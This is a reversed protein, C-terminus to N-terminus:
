ILIREDYKPPQGINGAVMTDETISKILIDIRRYLADKKENAYWHEIKKNSTIYIKKPNFNTMGGKTNVVMPYRDTMQLMLRYKISEGDFDDILVADQGVFGDFFQTSTADPLIFLDLENNHVYRTKGTGPPGIIIILKTKWNRKVNNMIEQYKKLHNINRSLQPYENIIDKLPIRENLKEIATVLDNRKGQKREGRNDIVFPCSLPNRTEDKTCYAEAQAPSGNRREAYLGNSQMIKKLGTIRISEKLEVYAQIHMRGTTPCIEEQGVFYYIHDLINLNQYHDKNKTFDTIIYNRSTM